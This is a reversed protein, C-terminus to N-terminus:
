PLMRAIVAYPPAIQAAAFGACFLGIVLASAALTLNAVRDSM